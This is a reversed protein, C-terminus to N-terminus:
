ASRATRALERCHQTRDRDADLRGTFGLRLHFGAHLVRHRDRQQAIDHGHRFRTKGMLKWETDMSDAWCAAAEEPRGGPGAAPDLPTTACCHARPAAAGSTSNAIASRVARTM